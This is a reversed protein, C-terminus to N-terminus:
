ARSSAPVARRPRSADGYGLGYVQVRRKWDQNWEQADVLDLLAREEEADIWDEVIRLGPVVDPATAFLTATDVFRM